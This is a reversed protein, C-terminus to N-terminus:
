GSSSHASQDGVEHAIEASEKKKGVGNGNDHHLYARNIKWIWISSLFLKLIIKVVSMILYNIQFSKKLNNSVVM